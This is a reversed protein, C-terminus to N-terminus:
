SNFLTNFRSIAFDNDSYNLEYCRIDKLWNLFQLAHDENPSIWSDPILTELIKEASVEKLESKQDRNFKVYVIKKCPFDPKLNESSYVPPVYKLNVKKPGNEYVELTEFNDIHSELVKFAGKKVSIAAPYRYLNLDNYLPTFDDALLDLGSAMLLTSLTSKGNGSDGIIMIAEKENTVTSAHFTAIWNEIKTNHIANALELAFRGQLLHFTKSKYTGVHNKNKFLHLDDDTKFIDFAIDCHITNEIQHHAIQPHILSEILSSEFHLKIIKDNIRYLKQIDTIPIKLLSVKTTDKTVVTNADELFNSIENYIAECKHDEIGLAEKITNIFSPKSELNLFLNILTYLDESVLVYRNSKKFWLVITEDLIHSYDPALDTKM